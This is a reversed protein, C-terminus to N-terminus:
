GPPPLDFRDDPREESRRLVENVREPRAIPPPDLLETTTPARTAVAPTVPMRQGEAPKLPELSGCAALLLSALLWLSTNLRMRRGSSFRAPVSLQSALAFSTSKDPKRRMQPARGLPVM